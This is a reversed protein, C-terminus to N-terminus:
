LESALILFGGGNYRLDIVLDVIDQNALQTVADILEQEATRIHDNFLMYGVNGTPTSITQVYQVPDSTIEQSTMSIDRETGDPDRVRFEHTEGVGDPFLGANLTDVDSGNIVDVGDIELLVAGRLLGADTAPTNPDTYAVRVDRPASSALLVWQAGYGASVGSQSLQYWEDSPYTFHFRDKPNGSATLEDTRLLDFYEATAYLAPDRDVIEDYWLYTNNSYSRLFNNEDTRTGAVDPFPQGTAPNTGSRPNVCQNRFTSADLFVGPTWGSGSNDDPDPNFGGGGGGGGGCGTLALTMLLVISRIFAPQRLRLIALKNSYM